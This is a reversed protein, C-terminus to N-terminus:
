DQVNKLFYFPSAEYQIYFQWIWFFMEVDDIHCTIDGKDIVFVKCIDGSTLGRADMENSCEDDEDDSYPVSEIRRLPYKGRRFIEFKGSIPNFGCYFRRDKNLPNIVVFFPADRPNTQLKLWEVLDKDIHSKLYEFSCYTWTSKPPSFFRTSRRKLM